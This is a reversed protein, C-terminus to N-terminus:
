KKNNKPIFVRFISGEESSSLEISGELKDLHKKVITMGLGSGSSLDPHFRKFLKFLDAQNDSPIGVGNDSVTILVSQNNEAVDVKVFRRSKNEDRYKIGNSLLNEIVQSFRVTEGSVESVISVNSIIEVGYDQRLPALREIVEEVITNFNVNENKSEDLDARSLKHIDTVLNELSTM